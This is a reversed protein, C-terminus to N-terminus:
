TKHLCPFVPKRESPINPRTLKVQKVSDQQSSIVNLISESPTMVNFIIAKVFALVTNKPWVIGISCGIMKSTAKRHNISSCEM